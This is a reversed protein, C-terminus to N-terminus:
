SEVGEKGGDTPNHGVAELALLAKVAAGDISQWSRAIGETEDNM